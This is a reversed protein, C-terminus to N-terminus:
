PCGRPAVRCDRHCEGVDQAATVLGERVFFQRSCHARQPAEYTTAAVTGFVAPQSQWTQATFHNGTASNSYIWVESGDSLPRRELPLSSFLAHRELAIVPQGRWM